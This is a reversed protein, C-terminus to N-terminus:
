MVDSHYDNSVNNKAQLVSATFQNLAPAVKLLRLPVALLFKQEALLFERFPQQLVHERLVHKHLQLICHMSAGTASKNLCTSHWGGQNRVGDVIAGNHEDFDTLIYYTCTRKHAIIM